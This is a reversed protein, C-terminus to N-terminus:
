LSLVVKIAEDDAHEVRVFNSIYRKMDHKDRCIGVIFGYVREEVKRQKFDEWRM